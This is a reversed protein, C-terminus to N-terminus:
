EIEHETIAIWTNDDTFTITRESDERETNQMEFEQIIARAVLKAADRSSHVSNIYPSYQNSDVLIIYVKM